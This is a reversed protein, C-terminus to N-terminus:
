LRKTTIKNKKKLCFVAYSIRMLSQLESTHEESRIRYSNGHVLIGAVRSHLLHEVLEAVAFFLDAVHQRLIERDLAELRVHEVRQAVGGGDEVRGRRRDDLGAHLGRIVPQADVALFGRDDNVFIGIPLALVLALNLLGFIERHGEAEDLLHESSALNNRDLHLDDSRFLPTYPFLTDPPTSIPPQRITFCFSHFFLVM